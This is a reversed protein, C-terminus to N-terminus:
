KRTCKLIFINNLDLMLRITNNTLWYCHLCFIYLKALTPYVVKYFQLISFMM